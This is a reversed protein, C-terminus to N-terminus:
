ASAAHAGDHNVLLDYLARSSSTRRLAAALRRDALRTAIWSVEEHHCGIDAEPVPVILGFILDVPEREPMDFDVPRSLKLFAGVPADLEALRGHPIAIGNEIATCGLKERRILSQFIEGQDLDAASSLLESLIDLAHKKSRAEVNGLVRGPELLSQFTM